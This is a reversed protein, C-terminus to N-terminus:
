ITLLIHKYRYSLLFYPIKKKPPPHFFNTTTFTLSNIDALYKNDAVIFAEAPPAVPSPPRLHNQCSRYFNTVSMQLNLVM